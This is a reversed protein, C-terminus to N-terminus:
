WLRIEANASATEAKVAQELTLNVSPAMWWSEWLSEVWRSYSSNKGQVLRQFLQWLVRSASMEPTSYFAGNILLEQLMGHASSLYGWTVPPAWPPGPIRAVPSIELMEPCPLYLPQCLKVKTGSVQWDQVMSLWLSFDGYTDVLFALSCILSRM